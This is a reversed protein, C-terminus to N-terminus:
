SRGTETGSEDRKKLIEVKAKQRLYNMFAAMEQQSMSRMLQTRMAERIQRNHQAPPLVKNIRYIVYGEAYDAGSIYTPLKGVDAKMIPMLDLRGTVNIMQRSVKVPASFGKPQEGEKLRALEAEGAEKALKGTKQLEVAKEIDAKVEEFPKVAAPYYHSVRAAVMLQPSIEIAETNHKDRIVDDSFIAQLFKPNGLIPHRAYAPNPERTLNDAKLIKLKLKDAVPKLSDPQEYVTNSFIEAAEAYRKGALQRKIEEMVQARVQSLPKEVAPKVDTLLIIHYGFDSQVVDSLEGKVLSFVAEEFPRVMKGRGFFGLDGGKSASGPDQSHAKALEAFAGPRAKLQSLLSAAKDRAAKHDSESANKPVEILIHSARREEPVAFRRANQKYYSQVDAESVKVAEEISPMDLVVLEANLHETVTFQNGNEKYYAELEEPTVKVQFRYDAGKFVKLQVEREQEFLRWVQETVQQPLYFGYALPAVIQQQLLEQRVLAFHMQDTMGQAKLGAEYRERNLKGDETALGPIEMITRLVVGDPVTLKEAAVEAAMVRNDILRDLVMWKFNPSEIWKPDFQQGARQRLLDAQERQANEWEQESIAKGDVKAPANGDGLMDYGQVGFFIFSPVIFVLLIIQTMLKNRRIWELM